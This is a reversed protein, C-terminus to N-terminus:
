MEDRYKQMLAILNDLQEANFAIWALDEGNINTTLIVERTEPRHSVRICNPKRAATTLARSIMAKVIERTRSFM